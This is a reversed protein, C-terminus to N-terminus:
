CLVPPVVYPSAIFYQLLLGGFDSYNCKGEQVLRVIQEAVWKAEDIDSQFSLKTVEGDSERIPEMHEYDVEEFTDAFENSVRVIEGAGRWNERVDVTKVDPFKESFDLFFRENLGRWQYISQRPDGVVFVSSNKGIAEIM